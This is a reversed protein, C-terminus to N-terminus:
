FYRGLAGQLEESHELVVKKAYYYDEVEESYLYKELKDCGNTLFVAYEYELINHAQM